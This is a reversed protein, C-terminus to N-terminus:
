RIKGRLVGIVFKFYEPDQEAFHQPDQYLREVGMSLLETGYRKGGYDYVKGAYAAKNHDGLFAALFKDENGVEGVDYGCSPFAKQLDIDPTQALRVRYDRFERCRNGVNLNHEVHHGLEHAIVSADESIHVFVGRNEPDNLPIHRYFARVRNGGHIRPRLMEQRDGVSVGYQQPDRTAGSVFKTADISKERLSIVTKAYGCSVRVGDKDLFPRSEMLEPKLKLREKSPVELTHSRAANYKKVAAKYREEVITGRAAVDAIQRDVESMRANAARYAALLESPLLQGAENLSTIQASLGNVETGIQEAAKRLDKRERLLAVQEDNCKDMQQVYRKGTFKLTKQLVAELEPDKAVIDQVAWTSYDPPPEEEPPAAEAEVPQEPEEAAQETLEEAEPSPEDEQNVGYETVITCRCNCRQSPPLDIHAPWPIMVGDLNWLGNEDALVGDLDAHADRTTNGLVSVWSKGIYKGVEGLEQKMQQISLDRASNLSHGAETRAVLMGRRYSYEDPFAENIRSAITAASEGEQLGIRLFQEIDGRTTEGIKQWYPQAFSERLAAAIQDKMWQPNEVLIGPPLDAAAGPHTALWESATSRTFTARQVRRSMVAWQAAAAESMGRALVPLAADVVERNWRLVDCVQGALDAATDQVHARTYPIARLRAGAERTHKRFVRALAGSLQIEVEEYQKVHIERCM